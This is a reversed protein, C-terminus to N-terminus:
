PKRLSSGLSVEQRSASAGSTRCSPLPGASVSSGSPLAILSSSFTAHALWSSDESTIWSAIANKKSAAPPPPAAAPPPPPPPPPSPSPAAPRSAPLFSRPPPIAPTETPTASAVTQPVAAAQRGAQGGSGAAEAAPLLVHRSCNHQMFGQRNSEPKPPSGNREGGGWGECILLLIGYWISAALVPRPEQLTEFPDM